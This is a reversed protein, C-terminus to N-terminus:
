IRGGVFGGRRVSVPSGMIRVEPRKNRRPNVFWLPVSPVSSHCLPTPPAARRPGSFRRWLSVMDVGERLGESDRCGGEVGVSGETNM